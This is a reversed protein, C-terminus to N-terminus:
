NDNINNFKQNSFSLKKKKNIFIRCITINILFKNKINKKSNNM